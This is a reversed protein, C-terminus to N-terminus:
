LWTRPAPAAARAAPRQCGAATDGASRAVSTYVDPVVPAYIVTMHARLFQILPTPHEPQLQLHHHPYRHRHHCDEAPKQPATGPGAPPQDGSPM